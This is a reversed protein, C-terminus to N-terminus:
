KNNKKRVATVIIAIVVTVGVIIAITLAPHHM